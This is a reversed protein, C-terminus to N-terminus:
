NLNIKLKFEQKEMDLILDSYLELQKNQEELKKRLFEIHSKLIQNNTNLAAIEAMQKDLLAENDMKPYKTKFPNRGPHKIKEM